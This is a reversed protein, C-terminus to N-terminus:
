ARAYCLAESQRNIMGNLLMRPEGASRDRRMSDAVRRRHVEKLRADVDGYDGQPEPM